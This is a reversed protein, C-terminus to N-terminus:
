VRVATVTRTGAARTPCSLLFTTSPVLRVLCCPQGAVTAALTLQSLFRKSLAESTAEASTRSETDTFFVLPWETKHKRSRRSIPSQPLAHHSFAVTEGHQSSLCWSVSQHASKLVTPEAAMQCKQFLTHPGSSARRGRNPGQSDLRSVPQGLEAGSGRPM